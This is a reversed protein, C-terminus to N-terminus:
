RSITGLLETVKGNVERAQGAVALSDLAQALIPDRSALYRVSRAPHARLVAVSGVSSSIRVAELWAGAALPESSVLAVANSIASTLSERRHTQAAEEVAALIAAATSAGGPVEKAYSAISRAIDLARDSSDRDAAAYDLALAGMRISRGTESVAHTGGRSADWVPSGPVTSPPLAQALMLPSLESDGARNRARVSLVAVAILISAAALGSLVPASLWRRPTLHNPRVEPRLALEDAIALADAYAAIQDPDSAALRARVRASDAASLRGELLAALEEPDPRSHQKL